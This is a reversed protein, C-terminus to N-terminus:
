HFHDLNAGDASKLIKVKERIKTEKCTRLCMPAASNAGFLGECKQKAAPNGSKEQYL